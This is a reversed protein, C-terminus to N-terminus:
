KGQRAEALTRDRDALEGVGEIGSRRWVLEDLLAQLREAARSAEEPSMPTTSIASEVREWVQYNTLSHLSKAFASEAPSKGHLKAVAHAAHQHPHHHRTGTSTHGGHSM